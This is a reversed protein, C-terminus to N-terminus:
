DVRHILMVLCARSSALGKNPAKPNLGSITAVRRDIAGWVGSGTPGGRSRRPLVSRKAEGLESEHAKAQEDAQSRQITIDYPNLVGKLDHERSNIVLEWNEVTTTTRTKNSCCQLNQLEPPQEEACLRAIPHNRKQAVQTKLFPPVNNDLEKEAPVGLGLESLTRLTTM